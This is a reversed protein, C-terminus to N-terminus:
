SHYRSLILLDSEFQSHTMNMCKTTSRKIQTNKAVEENEIVPSADAPFDWAQKCSRTVQWHGTSWPPKCPLAIYPLSNESDFCILNVGLGTNTALYTYVSPSGEMFLSRAIMDALYIKLLSSVSFRGSLLLRIMLLLVAFSQQLGKWAVGSLM